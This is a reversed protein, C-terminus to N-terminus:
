VVKIFGNASLFLICTFVVAVLQILFIIRIDYLYDDRPHFDYLRVSDEDAEAEAYPSIFLLFILVPWALISILPLISYRRWREEVLWNILEVDHGAIFYDNKIHESREQFIYMTTRNVVGGIIVWLSIADKHWDKLHLDPFWYFMFDVITHFIQRYATLLAYLAEVLPLDYIKVVLSFLSIAAALIGLINWISGFATQFSRKYM